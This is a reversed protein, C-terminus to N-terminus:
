HFYSLQHHYCPALRSVLPSLNSYSFFTWVSIRSPPSFFVGLYNHRMLYFLTHYRMHSTNMQAICLACVCVCVGAQIYFSLSFFSFMKMLITKYARVSQWKQKDINHLGSNKHCIAIIRRIPLGYWSSILKRRMPVVTCVVGVVVVDAMYREIASRSHLACSFM